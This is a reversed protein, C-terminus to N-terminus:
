LRSYRETRWNSIHVQHSLGASQLDDTKSTETHRPRFKSTGSSHFILIVSLCSSDLRHIIDRRDHCLMTWSVNVHILGCNGFAVKFTETKHATESPLSVVRRCQEDKSRGKVYLVGDFDQDQLHIVVQVGDSLCSVDMEPRPFDTRGDKDPWGPRVLFFLFQENSRLRSTNM